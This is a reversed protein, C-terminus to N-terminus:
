SFRYTIWVEFKWFLILDNKVHWMHFILSTNTEHRSFHFKKIASKWTKPSKIALFCSKLSFFKETQWAGNGSSIQRSVLETGIFALFSFNQSGYDKLGVQHVEYESNKFKSDKPYRGYLNRNLSRRVTWFNPQADCFFCFILSPWDIQL